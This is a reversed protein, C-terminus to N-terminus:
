EDANILLLVASENVLPNRGGALETGDDIGDGDSDPNNIDTGAQVEQLNTLGDQDPDLGSDHVSIQTGIQFEVLNSIGDGDVDGAADAASLPNLGSAVEVTDPIGDGDDDDDCADGEGDSNTDTQSPNAVTPCNDLAKGYGDSDLDYIAAAGAIDDPQLNVLDDPPDPITERMIVLPNDLPHSLGIIHGLEHLAVRRFDGVPGGNFTHPEVGWVGDYVDWLVVDNFIIGGQRILQEDGVTDFFTYALAITSAGWETEDCLQITFSASNQPPNHEICPDVTTTSAETFRFQNTNTWKTMANRFADNWVEPDTVITQFQPEFKVHFAAEGTAWEEGSLEYALCIGPVFHLYLLSIVCVLRRRKM